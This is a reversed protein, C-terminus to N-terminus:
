VSAQLLLITHFRSSVGPNAECETWDGNFRRTRRWGFEIEWTLAPTLSLCPRLLVRGKLKFSLKCSPWNRPSVSVDRGSPLAPLFIVGTVCSFLLLQCPGVRALRSSKFEPWAWKSDSGSANFALTVAVSASTTLWGHLYAHIRTHTHTGAQSGTM